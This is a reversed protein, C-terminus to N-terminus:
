RLQFDAPELVIVGPFRRFDAGNFTLIKTIGHLRMTAALRADHTNKGSIKCSTVLWKWEDFISPPEPLLRFLDKLAALEQAAEEIAMGLGNSEVPRTAVTWFEIFNQVAVHLPENDARLVALARDVLAYHPHGAQLSRLLINTDILVAM